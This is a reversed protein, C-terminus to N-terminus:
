TYKPIRMPIRVFVIFFIIYSLWYWGINFRFTSLPVSILDKNLEMERNVFGLGLLVSIKVMNNLSM